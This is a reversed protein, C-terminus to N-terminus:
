SNEMVRDIRYFDHNLYLLAEPSSSSYFDKLFREKSKCENSLLNAMLALNADRVLEFQHDFYNSRDFCRVITTLRDAHFENTVWTVRSSRALVLRLIELSFYVNGVSDRSFDEVFVRSTCISSSTNRLYDLYLHSEPVETFASRGSRGGTILLCNEDDKEMLEIAKLVRASSRWASEDSIVGGCILVVAQGFCKIRAGLSMEM